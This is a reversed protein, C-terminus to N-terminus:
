HKGKEVGVSAKRTRGKRKKGRVSEEVAQELPLSRKLHRPRPKPQGLSQSGPQGTPGRTSAPPWKTNHPIVITPTPVKLKNDIQYSVQKCLGKLDTAHMKTYDADDWGAIALLVQEHSTLQRSVQGGIVLSYITLDDDPTRSLYVRLIVLNFLMTAPGMLYMDDIKHGDRQIQSKMRSRFDDILSQDGELVPVHYVTRGFSSAEITILQSKRGGNRGTLGLSELYDEFLKMIPHSKSHTIISM